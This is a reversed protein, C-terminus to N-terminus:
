IYVRERSIDQASIEHPHCEPEGDVKKNTSIVEILDNKLFRCHYYYYLDELVM